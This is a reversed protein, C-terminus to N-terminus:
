KLITPLATVLFPVPSGNHQLLFIKNAFFFNKATTALTIVDM